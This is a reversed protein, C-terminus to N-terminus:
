MPWPQRMSTSHRDIPREIVRGEVALPASAAQRRHDGAGVRADALLEAQRDAAEFADLFRQRADGAVGVRHRASDCAVAAATSRPSFGATGEAIALYWQVSIARSTALSAMSMWPPM